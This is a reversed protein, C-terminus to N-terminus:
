SLIDKRRFIILAIGLYMVINSVILGLGRFLDDWPIPDFFAQEWNSFYTTFLYPQISKFVDLPLTSVMLIFIFLAMTGIVPGVANRVMTSFFIAISSVLVM